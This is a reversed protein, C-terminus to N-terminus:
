LLKRVGEYVWNHILPRLKIYGKNDRGYNVRNSLIVILLDTKMDYWTSTGTFGTHGISLPSFSSGCSPNEMSPIMYGMAWDGVAVSVARAAFSRATKQRVSYNAIGQLQARLTLGYSSVDDISGFLGAHTSIGGLAWTNEDHVEGRLVRKRIQCYETPAYLNEDFLRVNNVNFDLTSHPYFKEKIDQWIQLLNKQHMNELVFGLTLFGLDSYMAKESTKLNVSSNLLQFLQKRKNIWDQDGNLVLELYFPKWWDFGSTHTLLSTLKMQPDFFDPVFDIVKSEFTWQGKDFAVMMAQQTFIIKTLSALDYYPQTLGVSLDCIQRGTHYAQVQVGPTVDHIANNIKEFVSKEFSTYRM